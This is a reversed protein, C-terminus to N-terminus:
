VLYKEQKYRKMIRALIELLISPLSIWTSVRLLPQFYALVFDMDILHLKKIVVDM